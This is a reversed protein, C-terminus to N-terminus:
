QMQDDHGDELTLTVADSDDEDDGSDSDDEEDESRLGPLRLSPSAAVKVLVCLLLQPALVHVCKPWTGARVPRVM